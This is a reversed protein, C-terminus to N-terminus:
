VGKAGAFMYTYHVDVGYDAVCLAYSVCLCVCWVYVMGMFLVRVGCVGCM